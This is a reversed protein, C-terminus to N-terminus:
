ADFRVLIALLMRRGRLYAEPSAHPTAASSNNYTNAVRIAGDPAAYAAVTHAGQKMTKGNLHTLILVGGEPIAAPPTLHCTIRLRRGKEGGRRALVALIPPITLPNLGIQAGLFPTGWECAAIVDPLPLPRGLYRLANAIAIAGCGSRAVPHYGFRLAALGPRSQGHYLGDDGLCVDAVSAASRNRRRNALAIAARSVAFAALIAALILIRM